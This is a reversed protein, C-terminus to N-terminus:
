KYKIRGTPPLIQKQKQKQKHSAVAESRSAVRSSTSAVRSAEEMVKAKKNDRYRRSRAAATHDKQRYIDYNLILYGGDVRVMRRGEFRHSRSEDDPEGLRVLAKFGQEDDMGSRRIIGVGAAPVFGYWGPPVEFDTNNLSHVEIQKTPHHLEHPEAMLLATIFLERAGRDLWITSNLMGCDLKVFAM